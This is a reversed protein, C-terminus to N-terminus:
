PALGALEDALRDLAADLREPEHPLPAAPEIVQARAAGLAAIRRRTADDFLRHVRAGREAGRAAIRRARERSALRLADAEVACREIAAHAAREADLVRAIAEDAARATAVPSQTGMITGGQVVTGL